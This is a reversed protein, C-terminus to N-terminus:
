SRCTQGRVLIGRSWARKMADANAIETETTRRCGEGLGQAVRGLFEHAASFQDAAATHLDQCARALKTAAPLTGFLSTDVDCLGLGAGVSGFDRAYDQILRRCSALEDLDVTFGQMQRWGEALLTDPGLWPV